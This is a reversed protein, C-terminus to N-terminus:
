QSLHLAPNKHIELENPNKFPSVSKAMYPVLTVWYSFFLGSNRQSCHAKEYEFRSM